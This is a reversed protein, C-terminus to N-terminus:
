RSRVRRTKKARPPAPSSRSWRAAPRAAASGPALAPHEGLRLRLPHHLRQGRAQADAGRQRLRAHLRRALLQQLQQAVVRRSRSALHQAHALAAVGEVGAVLELRLHGRHLNGRQRRMRSPARRAKGSLTSAAESRACRASNGTRVGSNPLSRGASPSSVSSRFTAMCILPRM